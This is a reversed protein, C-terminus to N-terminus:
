KLIKAFDNLPNLNEGNLIIQNRAYESINNWENQPMDLIQIIKNKISSYNFKKLVWVGDIFSDYQPMKSPNAIILKNGRSFSEYISTTFDGITIISSDCLKYSSYGERPYYKIDYEFSKLVPLEIKELYKDNKLGRGAFCVRLQLDRCVKSLEKYFSSYYKYSGYNPKLNSVICIDYEKNTINNELLYLSNDISGITKVRNINPPSQNKVLKESFHGMVLLEDLYLDKFKIGFIQEENVASGLGPMIGIFYSRHIKKLKQFTINSFRTTLVKSHDILLLKYSLKFLMFFESFDSSEAFILRSIFLTKILAIINFMKPYIYTVEFTYRLATLLSQAHRDDFVAITNDDVKVFKILDIM